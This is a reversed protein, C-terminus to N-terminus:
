KASVAKLISSHQVNQTYAAFTWGQCHRIGAGAERSCCLRGSNCLVQTGADVVQNSALYVDPRQTLRM